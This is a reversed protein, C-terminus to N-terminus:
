SRHLTGLIKNPQPPAPKQHTPLQKEFRPAALRRVHVDERRVGTRKEEQHLPPGSWKLRGGTELYDRIKRRLDLHTRLHPHSIALREIRKHRFQLPNGILQGCEQRDKEVGNDQEQQPPPIRQALEKDEPHPAEKPRGKEGVWKFSWRDYSRM